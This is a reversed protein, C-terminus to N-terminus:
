AYGGDSLCYSRCFLLYYVEPTPAHDNWQLATTTQSIHALEKDGCVSLARQVPLVVGGFHRYAIRCYHLAAAPCFRSRSKRKKSSIDKVVNRRFPAAM